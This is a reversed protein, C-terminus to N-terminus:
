PPAGLPAANAKVPGGEPAPDANVRLERWSRMLRSFVARDVM